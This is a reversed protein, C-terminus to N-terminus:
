NVTLSVNVTVATGVSPTIVVTAPYTGVALGAVNVNFAILSSQSATDSGSTPTVTLWTASPTGVAWTLTDGGTNQITIPQAAPNTGATTTFTLSSASLAMNPPAINITIPITAPSGAVALNTIPDIASIIVSTTFTSGGAVGTANVIVNVPVSTGGALNTGAGASLSVFAPAGAALVATWNLPEGGTNTITIPQTNTGTIANFTLAPGTTLAPPALDNLTVAVTQPSGTIAIGGDVAALSISGAYSGAVLAASTVTVTFTAATGSAVPASAPSVALWGTGTGMTATPTITVAGVCGGIVGITFTQAAPNSGAETAFTEGAVSPVQLTCAPQVTLTVTITQPAGVATKTVSDIATITIAGSYTGSTLGALAVGVSTASSATKSAIGTAPTTTLWPGGAPTPAVAATWNLANVCAGSAGITAPQTAPNPHGVVGLFTLAPPTAAITCPAQVVFTVPMSQPSGTAPKGLSDIGTITITGNYTAPTLTALLTATVTITASQHSILNSTAPTVSLWAGGVVTAATAQWTLTGGGSNTVTVAQPVPNPQGTIDSFALLAPTTAIIPTTPQGMIFTVPLTLTGASSSFIISGTYTGPTLGAVSVAVSPQTPTVGATIGIKLWPGGQNTTVFASWHLTTSCGQIVGVSIVKPAPQPQLYVGTFTLSGPSVQIGCQPVITVSVFVTQPSDKVAETAQNTFNVWGSYVGPLLANINISVTVPQSNGTNVTGSQPNVSLWNSGDSTSSSAGWQLPRVGPNSVTVVQGPPNAGGDVGSFSLVPPTLQLVAEHGPQLQTVTMKVPLTYQGANSTFIVGAPYSGVKLNSRDVAVVVQMNQGSAFTGSNPSILLWAQTTTAQWTIQGGGANSLTIVQTSNTAQDGSGFDIANLSFLLHAPRLSTSQGSVMITFSASKHLIADEARIIHPGAGWAPDVIVTDSFSGSEDAQIINAGGTDVIEIDTDRTLGVHGSPSFYSGHLTIIGGPAITFPTVQLTLTGATHSPQGLIGRGLSVAIGFIGGLLLGALVVVSIWSFLHTPVRRPEEPPVRGPQAPPAPPPTAPKPTVPPPSPITTVPIVPPLGVRPTKYTVIKSWTARRHMDYDDSIEFKDDIQQAPAIAESGSVAANQELKVSTAAGHSGTEQNGDNEGTAVTYFRPVKLAAPRNHKKVTRTSKNKSDSSQTLSPLSSGCTACYKAIGPLSAHCNPCRIVKM